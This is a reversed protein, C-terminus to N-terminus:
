HAIRHEDQFESFNQSSPAIETSFKDLSIIITPPKFFVTEALAGSGTLKADM